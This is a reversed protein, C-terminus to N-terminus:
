PKQAHMVQMIVGDLKMAFLSSCKPPKQGNSSAEAGDDETECTCWEAISAMALALSGRVVM